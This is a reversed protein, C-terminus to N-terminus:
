KHAGLQCTAIDRTSCQPFVVLTQNGRDGAAAIVDDLGDGNVDGGRVYRLEDSSRALVDATFTGANDTIRYLVGGSADHCAAVLALTPVKIATADTCTAGTMHAVESCSTPVGSTDVKCVFVANDYTAILEPAGDGDLDAAALQHAPGPMPPALQSIVGASPSTGGVDMHIAKGNHDVAIVIDHTGAPFALYRADEACWGTGFDHSCDVAGNLLQGDSKTGDFQAVPGKIGWGRATPDGQQTPKPTGIAIVDRYAAGTFKGVTATRLVTNPKITDSRPDYYPIMTRQANGVLITLAPKGMVTQLVIVDNTDLSPDANSPLAVRAVAVVNGFTAVEVPPALRAGQDYAVMMREHDVVHETYNVDKAGDGDFDGITISTVPAATPVRFLQFSAVLVNSTRYLVDLDNTGGGGIVVDPRGDGDLDGTAALSIPRPSAYIQNWGTGGFAWIGDPLVLGDPASFVVGGFSAHSIPHAGPAEADMPPLPDGVGSLTCHNGVMAGPWHRMMRAGGESTIVDPCRDSDNDLDALVPKTSLSPAGPQTINTIQAQAFISDKHVSMVCLKGSHSTLAVVLDTQTDGDQSVQYVDVLDPSFDTPAIAACPVAATLQTATGFDAIMLLMVNNQQDVVFAGVALPGVTFLDRADFSMGSSSVTQTVDLPSLTGFPSAYTVLGDATAMTVDLTGDNDVDGFAAPGTQSPTVEADTRALSAAVDGHRVVLSTRSVGVVDGIKDHDIDTIAYDDVLFLGGEVPTALAGLPAHCLGDVGCSYDASPCDAAKTCTVACRVCTADTSDCDEGPELVGNGCVNRPVADFSTCAALLSLLFWRKM